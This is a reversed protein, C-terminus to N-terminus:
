FLTEQQGFVVLAELEHIEGQCFFVLELICVELVVLVIHLLEPLRGIVLFILLGPELFLFLLLIDNPINLSYHTPYLQLPLILPNHLNHVRLIPISQKQHAVFLYVVYLNLPPIQLNLGYFQM